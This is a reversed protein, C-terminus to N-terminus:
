YTSCTDFPISMFFCVMRPSFPTMPFSIALARETCWLGEVLVLVVVQEAALLELGSKIHLLSGVDLADLFDHLRVPLVGSM